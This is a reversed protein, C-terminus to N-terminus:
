IKSATLKGGTLKTPNFRVWEGTKLFRTKLKGTEVEPETRASQCVSLILYINLFYQVRNIQNM